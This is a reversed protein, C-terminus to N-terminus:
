VVEVRSAQAKGLVTCHNRPNSDYHIAWILFDIFLFMHCTGIVYLNKHCKKNDTHYSVKLQKIKYFQKKRTIYYQYKHFKKKQEKFDDADTFFVNHITPIQKIEEYVINYFGIRAFLERSYLPNPKKDPNIYQPPLPTGIHFGGEALMIKIPTDKKSTFILGFKHKFLETVKDDPTKVNKDSDM